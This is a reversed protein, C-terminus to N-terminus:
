KFTYGYVLSGTPYCWWDTANKHNMVWEGFSHGYQNYAGYAVGDKFTCLPNHEYPYYFTSSPVMLGWSYHNFYVAPDDYYNWLLEMYKYQYTHVEFKLSNYYTIIFPDLNKTTYSGLNFTNNLRITYTRTQEPVFASELEEENLTVNYLERLVSGETLMQPNLSWHADEFLCVVAEGNRGAVCTAGDEDTLTRQFPYDDDFPKGDDITVQEIASYPVGPLHVAGALQSTMGVARLTVRLKLVQREPMWAAINMVVDNYDFDGPRPYSGEFLYTYGQWPLDGIQVGQVNAPFSVTGQGLTFPTAYYRGTNTKLAAYYHQVGMPVEVVINSTIGSTTPCEGVVEAKGSAPDDTLIQLQRIQPDDVNANVAIIKTQLLNWDHNADVTDVPFAMTLVERYAEPEFLDKKCASLLLMVVVAMLLSGIVRKMEM